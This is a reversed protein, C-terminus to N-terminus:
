SSDAAMRGRHCRHRGPRAGPGLRRRPGTHRHLARLLLPLGVAAPLFWFAIPPLLNWVPLRPGNDVYFATLATIFACSMGAIHTARWGPWRRRAGLFGVAALTAAATGLVVLHWRHAWDISALIPATVCVGGLAVLWVRGARRHRRTGKRTLMATVGAVVATLGSIVHIGVVVTIM